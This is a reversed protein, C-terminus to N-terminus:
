LWEMRCLYLGSKCSGNGKWSHKRLSSIGAPLEIRRWWKPELHHDYLCSEHHDYYNAGTGTNKRLCGTSSDHTGQWMKFDGGGNNGADYTVASTYALPKVYTFDAFVQQYNSSKQASTLNNPWSKTCGKKLTLSYQANSVKWTLGTQQTNDNDGKKMGSVTITSQGKSTTGDYWNIYYHGSTTTFTYGVNDTISSLYDLYTDFHEAVTDGSEDTQYLDLTQSLATERALLTEKDVVNMSEIWAKVDRENHSLIMHSVEEDSMTEIDAAFLDREDETFVYDIDEEDATADEGTKKVENDSVSSVDVETMKDGEAAFVPIQVSTIALAASLVTSLLRTVIKKKM